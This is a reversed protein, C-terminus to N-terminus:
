CNNASASRPTPPESQGEHGHREKWRLTWALWADRRARNKALEAQASETVDLLRHGLVVVRQWDPPRAEM